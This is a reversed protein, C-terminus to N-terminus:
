RTRSPPVTWVPMDNSGEVIVADKPRELKSTRPIRISFRESRDRFLGYLDFLDASTVVVPRSPM